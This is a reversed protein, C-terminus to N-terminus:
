LNKLMQILEADSANFRKASNEVRSVASKINKSIEDFKVSIKDLLNQNVDNLKEKASDNADVIESKIDELNERMQRILEDLNDKLKDFGDELSEPLNTIATLSSEVTKQSAEMANQSAEIKTSLAAIAQSQGQSEKTMREVNQEVSTKLENIEESKVLAEVSKQLKKLDGGVADIKQNRLTAAENQKGIYEGMLKVEEGVKTKVSIMESNINKITNLSDVLNAKELQKKVDVLLAKVSEEQKAVRELNEAMEIKDADLKSVIGAVAEDKNSKLFSMYICMGLFFSATAAGCMVMDQQVSHVLVFVAGALFLSSFFNKM